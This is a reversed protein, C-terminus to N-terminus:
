GFALFVQIASNVIFRLKKKQNKAHGQIVKVVHGQSMKKEIVEHSRPYVESKLKEGRLFSKLTKDLLAVFLFLHTKGRIEMNEM